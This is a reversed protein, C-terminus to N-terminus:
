KKFFEVLSAVASQAMASKAEVSNGGIHPTAMLNPCALLGNDAPPEQAFVDLAAGAIDGALLAQKLDKENVIGGRSTNVLFAGTKMKQFVRADIMDATTETLPLHLSVIDSRAILDDFGTEEVEHAQCFEPMDLIDRTLVRCAFPRLLRVVEKGINGCGVIGVTKGSLQHGGDKVWNNQKLAFGTAFINHCLGLMFGVALEAVSLKNVGATYGLAVGRRRMADQDINDLGVGYKAVMRLNPLANLVNENVPDRGLLVADAGNLFAILEEEAFYRGTENFFASPFNKLLTKGAASSKRIAPPTVGIKAPLTTM